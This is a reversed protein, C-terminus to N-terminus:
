GKDRDLMIVIDVIHNNKILRFVHKRMLQLTLTRKAIYVANRTLLHHAHM